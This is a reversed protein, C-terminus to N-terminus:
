FKSLTFGIWRGFCLTAVWFVLSLVGAVTAGAPIRGSQDWRAITRYAGLHFVAMNIGAAVLTLMKLRFFTNAAYNPAQSAFLASGTLVAGAFAAWTWPLLERMTRGTGPRYSGIGLLALDVTVISGFVIAIAVVHATELWPFWLEGESITTAVPTNVLWTLAQDIM